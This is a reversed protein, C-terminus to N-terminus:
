ITYPEAVVAPQTKMLTPAVPTATNDIITERVMVPQVDKAGAVALADKSVSDFDKSPKLKVPRPHEARYKKYHDAHRVDNLGNFFLAASGAALLGGGVLGLVGGSYLIGAAASFALMGATQKVEGGRKLIARDVVDNFFERVSM